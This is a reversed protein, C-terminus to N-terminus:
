TRIKVLNEFLPTYEELNWHAKVHCSACLTIGNTINYRRSEEKNWDIIHHAVLGTHIHCLSCTKKDRMYVAEKWSIYEKTSRAPDNLVTIGGRWNPNKEGVIDKHGHRPHNSGQMSPRPGRMKARIEESYIHGKMPSPRGKRAESLTRMPIGSRKITQYVTSKNSGFLDAIEQLTKGSQYLSIVESPDSFTKHSMYTSVPLYKCELAINYHQLTKM